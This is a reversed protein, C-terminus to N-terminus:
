SNPLLMFTLTGLQPGWLMHWSSAPTEPRESRRVVSSATVADLSRLLMGFWEERPPYSLSIARRTLDLLTDNATHHEAPKQARPIHANITTPFSPQTKTQCLGERKGQSQVWFATRRFGQIFDGNAEQIGGATQKRDSSSV